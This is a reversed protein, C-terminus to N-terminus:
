EGALEVGHLEVGLLPDTDGLVGPGLVDDDGALM